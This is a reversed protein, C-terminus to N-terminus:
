KWKDWTEKKIANRFAAFSGEHLENLQKIIQQATFDGSVENFHDVDLMVYEKKPTKNKHHAFSLFRAGQSLDPSIYLNDTNIIDKSSIHMANVKITGSKTKQITETKALYTNEFINSDKLPYGLLETNLARYINNHILNVYRLGIRIYLKNKIIENFKILANKLKNQMDEFSIYCSTHFTISNNTVMIASTFTNDVFHWIKTADCKYTGNAINISQIEQCKYESFQDRIAEQIAPIQEDMKLFENFKIQALVYTLPSKRLKEHM